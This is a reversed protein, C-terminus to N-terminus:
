HMIGGALIKMRTGRIALPTSLPTPNLTRNPTPLPNRSRNLNPAPGIPTRASGLRVGLGVRLGRGLGVRLGERTKKARLVSQSTLTRFGGVLREPRRHRMM